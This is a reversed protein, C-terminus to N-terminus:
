SYDSPSSVRRTDFWHECALSELFRAAYMAKRICYKEWAVIGETRNREHWKCDLSDKAVGASDTHKYVKGNLEVRVTPVTFYLLTPVKTSQNFGTCEMQVLKGDM